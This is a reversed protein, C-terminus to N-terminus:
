SWIALSLFVVLLAVLITLPAGLKTFDAFQYRGPGYVLLNGHHGIPTLFATVAAMAVTIVYPEPAQGLVQALAAAVPAFLATTAADSMFQTVVAVILYILLLIAIPSWGGVARQLWEAMVIATGTKQIALGLPIAGAIFVYIKGNISQYAQQLTICGFLMMAAAGALMTIELAFLNFAATVITGLMIAGALRAKRRLRVEGHFPVMLLFAPDNSVRSLSEHDGYLVLVDGPELKIDAMEQCLLGGQRWLGIVNAGYRTEFDVDQLSRHIIDSQPGVVAQVLEQSGEEGAKFHRTKLEFREVPHLKLGKERSFGIMDEPSAYVWLVDGERLRTDGLPRCEGKGGRVWGVTLFSYHGKAAVEDVTKGIFSSNPLLKVETFYSDLRFFDSLEGGGQRKPLIYRGIVLMFLTGALVLTIGIPAISFIGLGPRGYHQLVTSAVLFAPAGIILITTGLSAAFSLPMLVLSAPIGREQCLTLVIPLMLATTTVHHTFASLIATSLMTVALFRSYGEGAFRGIWAGIAESLGTKHLAGNMIFVSALIIAPESGFGSLAESPSLVGTFALALIILVAVMDNRLRETILLWFALVLIISLSIQPMNLGSLM